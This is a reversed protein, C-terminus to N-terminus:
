VNTGDTGLFACDNRWGYYIVTNQSTCMRVYLFYRWRELLCKEKEHFLEKIHESQLFSPLEEAKEVFWCRKQKTDDLEHLAFM